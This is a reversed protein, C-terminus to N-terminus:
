KINRAYVVYEGMHSDYYFIGRINVYGKPIRSSESYVRLSYNEDEVILYFGYSYIRAHVCAKGRKMEKIESINKVKGTANTYASDVYFKGDKVIGCFYAEREGEYGDPVFALMHSTSDTLNLYTIKEYKIKGSFSVVLGSFNSPNELLVPIRTSFDRSLVKIEERKEVNLVIGSEGKEILGMASIRMGPEVHIKVDVFINLYNKFDETIKILTYDEGFNAKWVIGAVQVYDGIYKKSENIHIKVPPTQTTYFYLLVLSIAILANILLLARERM